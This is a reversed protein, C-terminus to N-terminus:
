KPAVNGGRDDHNSPKPMPAPEQGDLAATVPRGLVVVGPVADRLRRIGKPTVHTGQIDVLRLHKLGYLNPLGSDSVRTERLYLARLSTLTGATRLSLDTIGTSSVNLEELSQMRALSSIGKDSIATGALSLVRINKKCICQLGQDTVATDPLDLSDIAPHRLLIRVGNDTIKKGSVAFHRLNPFRLLYKLGDDTVNTRLVNLYALRDLRLGSLKGLGNDTIASEFLSLHQLATLPALSLIADDDASHDGDNLSVSVVNGWDWVAEAGLMHMSRLAAEQEAISAQKVRVWQVCVATLLVLFVVSAVVFVTRKGSRHTNQM